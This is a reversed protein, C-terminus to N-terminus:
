WRRQQAVVRDAAADAGAQDVAGDVGEHAGRGDLQGAAQPDVRDAGAQQVFCGGLREAVVEAAVLRDGALAHRPGITFDTSPRSVPCTM